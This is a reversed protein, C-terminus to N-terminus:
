AFVRAPNAPEVVYPLAEDPLTGIFNIHYGPILAMEQVEGFETQLMVGTPKHITGVPDLAHEHSALIWGTYEPIEMWFAALIQRAEAENAFKLYVTM